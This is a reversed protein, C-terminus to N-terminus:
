LRRAMLVWLPDAGAPSRDLVAAEEYGESLDFYTRVLQLREKPGLAWWARVAKTPFCRHSLAVLHVGGPRLVRAVSTFVKVPKTLYQVSVANLVADFSTDPFPLEPDANLNHVTHQTLRPNKALEVENMGLGAVRGFGVEEPLHSVWSSMLDLVDVGEPIFERYVQTLSEITASDIHVVLRPTEYFVADDTEDQRDFFDAPLQSPDKV